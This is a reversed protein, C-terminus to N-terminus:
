NYTEQHLQKYMGKILEDDPHLDYAKKITEKAQKYQQIEIYILALNYHAEPINPDIEILRELDSMASHYDLLKLYAFSRQFLFEAELEDYSELAKTTLQITEEYAENELYHNTLYWDYEPTGKHKSAGYLFTITLISILSMTALLRISRSKKHPLHVVGAGLFGAILGGLHAANDIAPLMFGITVNLCVLFIINMGMTKFFLEKYYIGFFLIAGFLGFIAGSAGASVHYTFAFSSLSGGIGAIFYIVIFRWSGYIREVVQGLYFLALMNMFLHIFGIHIFTSTILRWWEGDILIAPNYKAGFKILNVTDTTGGNLTMFLFMMVNMAILIYTFNPKGFSFVNKEQKIKNNLLASLRYKLQQTTKLKDTENQLPVFSINLVKNLRDMEINETFVDLYFLHMTMRQNEAHIPRKLRDFSDVPSHTAVYINYITVNKRKFVYDLRKFVHLLDNKLHNKWHFQRAVLRILYVDRKNAVKKLWLEHNIMDIHMIEFQQETILHHAVSYQIYEQELHINGM